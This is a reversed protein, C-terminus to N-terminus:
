INLKKLVEKFKPDSPRPAEAMVINGNPDILVFRPIGSIRYAKTFNKDQNYHVQTGPLKEKAVMKKWKDLFKKPDVSVGLFAINKNEYEEAVKKLAPIETKCFGCWTAWFNIYVYKGKFDSLSVNKESVDKYNSFSPALAGKKLNTLIYKKNEYAKNVYKKFKKINKDQEKLFLTDESETGKLFTSFSIHYERLKEELNEKPKFYLSDDKFFQEQMLASKILFNSEEAGKGSFTLTEDFMKTDLTLHLEYGKKLFLTAYEKGDFLTYFHNKTKLTDKFNGQEDVKIVKKYKLRRNSIVISDSNKDTIKGSLTVYDKLKAEKECSVISLISLLYILKKM